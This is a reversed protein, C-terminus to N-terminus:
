LGEKENEDELGRHLMAEKLDEDTMDNFGICGERIINELWELDNQLTEMDCRVLADVMEKRTM